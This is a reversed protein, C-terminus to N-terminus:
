AFRRQNVQVVNISSRGVTPNFFFDNMRKTCSLISGRARLFLCQHFILLLLLAKGSEKAWFDEVGVVGSSRCSPKALCLALRCARGQSRRRRRTV